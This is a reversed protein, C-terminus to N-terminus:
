IWGLNAKASEISATANETKYIKDMCAISGGPPPTMDHDKGNTLVGFTYNTCELNNGVLVQDLHENANKRYNHYHGHDQFLEFQNIFM